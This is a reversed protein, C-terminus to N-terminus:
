RVLFAIPWMFDLSKYGQGHYQVTGAKDTMNYGPHLAGTPVSFPFFAVAGSLLLSHRPLWPLQSRVRDLLKAASTKSTGAFDEMDTHGLIIPTTGGGNM